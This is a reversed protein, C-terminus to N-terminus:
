GPPTDKDSIYGNWLVQCFYFALHQKPQGFPLENTKPRRCENSYWKEKQESVRDTGAGGRDAHDHDHLGQEKEGHILLVPLRQFHDQALDKLRNEDTRLLPQILCIVEICGHLPLYLRFLLHLGNNLFCFYSGRAFGTAGFTFSVTASRRSIRFTMSDALHSPFGWEAWSM